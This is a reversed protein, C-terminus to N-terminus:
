GERRAGLEGSGAGHAAGLRWDRPRKTKQDDRRDGRSAREAEGSIKDWHLRVRGYDFLARFGTEKDAKHRTKRPSMGLTFRQIFEAPIEVFNKGHEEFISFGAEFGLKDARM